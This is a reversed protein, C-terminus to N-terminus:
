NLQSRKILKHFDKRHLKSREQLEESRKKLQQSQEELKEIYVVLKEM